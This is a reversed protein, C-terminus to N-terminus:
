PTLPARPSGPKGPGVPILPPNPSLTLSKKSLYCKNVHYKELPYKFFSFFFDYFLLISTSIHKYEKYFICMTIFCLVCITQTIKDNYSIIHIGGICYLHINYLCLCLVNLNNLMSNVINLYRKSLQAGINSTYLVVNNKM